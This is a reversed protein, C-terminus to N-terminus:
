QKSKNLEETWLTMSFLIPSSPGHSTSDRVGDAIDVAINTISTYTNLSGVQLSSFIVSTREKSSSVSQGFM